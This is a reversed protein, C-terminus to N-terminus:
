TLLVSILIGVAGVIAWLSLQQQFFILGLFYVWLPETLLLVSIVYPKLKAAAFNILFLPLSNGFVGLAVLTLWNLSSLDFRLNPILFTVGLATLALAVIAFVPLAILFSYFWTVMPHLKTDRRLKSSWVILGGFFFSTILALLSGRDIELLNQWGGSGVLIVVSILSLGIALWHKTKPLEKFILWTLGVVTLPYAYSLLVAKALPTGLYISAIFLLATGSYFLANVLLNLFDKRSISFDQRTLRFLTRSLILALVVGVFTRWFNQNFVDIKQDAALKSFISLGSYSLGALLILFHYKYKKM